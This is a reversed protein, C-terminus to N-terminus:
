SKYNKYSPLQMGAKRKTRQRKLFVWYNEDQLRQGPPVDLMGKAEVMSILKDVNPDTFNTFSWHKSPPKSSGKKYVMNKVPDGRISQPQVIEEKVANDGSKKEDEGKDKKANKHPANKPLSDGGNGGEGGEADM